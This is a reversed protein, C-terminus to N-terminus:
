EHKSDDSKVENKKLDAERLYRGCVPCYDIVVTDKRGNLTTITVPKKTYVKGKCFSCPKKNENM